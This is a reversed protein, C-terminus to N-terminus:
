RCQYQKVTAGDPTVIVPGVSAFASSCITIVQVVSFEFGGASILHVTSPWLKSLLAELISCAGWPPHIVVDLTVNLIFRLLRLMTTIHSADFTLSVSFTTLVCVMFTIQSYRLTWLINVVISHLSFSRVSHLHTGAPLGPRVPLILIFSIRFRGLSRTDQWNM